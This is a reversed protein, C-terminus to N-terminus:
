INVHRIAIAVWEVTIHNSVLGYHLKVLLEGILLPLRRRRFILWVLVQEIEEGGIVSAIMEQVGSIWRDVDGRLGHGVILEITQFREYARVYPRDIM